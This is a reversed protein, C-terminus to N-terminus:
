SPGVVVVAPELLHSRAVRQVDASTVAEIVDPYRGVYAHGVGMLEFFGLYFSQRANTRLDLDFAGGLYAKARALEADPVPEQQLRAVEAQIGAEARPVNAPATGIHIVLRSAERRTPYFSGVAYALGAEDRLVRFLRSSMGAGLVANLVKLPGHDPHGVPPALFGVLLQTQQTTRLERARPAAPHGPPPALSREAAGSRIGGFMRAVEELVEDRRVEGSVALVMREPALFTEFQHVLDRRGLRGVTGPDGSPRLGYPHLGYLARCLLRNAVQFPQDELGRIQALLIAREREIEEPLLSPATAVEHLLGLLAQWHRALGRARLESYEQDTASELDGGADEATQALGLASRALTGKLLVRGLLATVGNTELTEHRSGARVVLTMAAVPAAANERVIVVMGNPLANRVAPGAAAAPDLRVTAM